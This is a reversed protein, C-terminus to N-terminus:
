SSMQYLAWLGKTFNDPFNPPNPNMMSSLDNIQQCVASKFNSSAGSNDVISKLGDLCKKLSAFDPPNMKALSMIGLIQTSFSLDGSLLQIDTDDEMASLLTLSNNQLDSCYPLNNIYNMQCVISSIQNSPAGSSNLIKEYNELDKDSIPHNKALATKFASIEDSIIKQPDSFFNLSSNPYIPIQM